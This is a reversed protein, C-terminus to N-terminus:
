LIVALLGKMVRFMFVVSRMTRARGHTEPQHTEGHGALIPPGRQARIRQDGAHQTRVRDIRRHVHGGFFVMRPSTASRMLSATEQHEQPKQQQAKSTAATRAAGGSSFATTSFIPLISTGASRGPSETLTLMGSVM